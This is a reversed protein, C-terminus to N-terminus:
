CTTPAAACLCCKAPCKARSHSQESVCFNQSPPGPISSVLSPHPVGATSRAQSITSLQTHDTPPSSLVSSGAISIHVRYPPASALVGTTDQRLHKELGLTVLCSQVSSYMALFMKTCPVACVAHMRTCISTLLVQEALTRNTVEHRM